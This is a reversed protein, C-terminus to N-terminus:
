FGVIQLTIVNPTDAFEENLGRVLGIADGMKQQRAAVKRRKYGAVVLDGGNGHAFNAEIDAFAGELKVLGIFGPERYL